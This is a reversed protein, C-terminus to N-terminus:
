LLVFTLIYVLFFRKSAVVHQHNENKLEYPLVNQLSDVFTRSRINQM